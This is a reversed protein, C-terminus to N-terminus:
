TKDKDSNNKASNKTCSGAIEKKMKTSGSSTVDGFTKKMPPLIRRKQTKSITSLLTNRLFRKNTSPVPPKKRFFIIFDSNACVICVCVCLDYM